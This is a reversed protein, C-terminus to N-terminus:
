RLGISREYEEIAWPMGTCDPPPTGEELRRAFEKDAADFVRVTQLVNERAAQAAM